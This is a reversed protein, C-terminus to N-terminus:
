QAWHHIADWRGTAGVSTSPVDQAGRQTCLSYHHKTPTHRHTYCPFPGQILLGWQQSPSFWHGRSESECSHFTTQAEILILWSSRGIDTGVEDLASVYCGFLTGVVCSKWADSRCELNKMVHYRNAKSSSDQLRNLLTNGNNGEHEM